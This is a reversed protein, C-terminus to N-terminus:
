RRRPARPRAAGGDRRPPLQRGGSDPAPRAAALVAPRGGTRAVPPAGVVLRGGRGPRRQDVPVSWLVVPGNTPTSPASPARGRPVSAPWAATPSLSRRAARSSPGPGFGPRRRGDADVGAARRAGARRARPRRVVVAPRVDARASGLAGDHHGAGRGGGRPLGRPHRRPPREAATASPVPRRVTSAEEFSTWSTEAPPRAAPAAPRRSPQRRPAPAPWAAAPAVPAGPRARTGRVVHRRVAPSASGLPRLPGPRGAGAVPAPDGSRRPGDAPAAGGDVGRHGPDRPRHRRHRDRRGDGGDDDAPRQRFGGEHAPAVGPGARRLRLLFVGTLFGSGGALNASSFALVSALGIAGAVVSLVGAMFWAARISRPPEGRDRGEPLGPCCAAEDGSHVPPRRRGGRAAPPRRGRHRGARLRVAPRARPRRCVRPGAPRAARDGKYMVYAVGFCAAGVLLSVVTSVLLAPIYKAQVDSILSIRDPVDALAPLFLCLGAVVFLGAVILVEPPQGTPGLPGPRRRGPADWGTVAPASPTRTVPHAVGPRDRDTGAGIM